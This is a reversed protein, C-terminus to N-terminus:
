GDDRMLYDHISSAAQRGEHIAWVVLSAGRTMDGAVFVGPVTTMYDADRQVANRENWAVGLESLLGQKKPGLFGMAMLVLDVPQTFETGPKERMEFRGGPETPPIWEVEVGHLATVKGNEGSFGKTLVSWRREGGEEHSTGSKVKSPKPMIEYQHVEAAGQRHSTGLCDAGTDGGGLIVVKKGTALIADGEAITDGLDRKNQQVLFDMALHIGDLDRGEVEPPLGRADEAGGALLVADFSNRLEKVSLDVGVNTNPYFDVGEARMQEIRREVVVPELKFDPIGYTLLGGLRDNKEFVSVLHGLRALQQAGALGAPGSGVVAVKKWTHQPAPNPQVWGEDFARDVITREIVKITVPDDNIGLICATECPAPCVRGTVDPFNNTRHLEAIAQQWDGRMVLDNWDPILNGLPCGNNGHCGPVGCDMCRSAQETLVETPWALEFENYDKVREDISRRLNSFRTFELFGTPKGM